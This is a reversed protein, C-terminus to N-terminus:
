VIERRLIQLFIIVHLDVIGTGIFARACPTSSPLYLLQLLRLSLRLGNYQLHQYVGTGHYIYYSFHAGPFECGRDFFVVSPPNRTTM